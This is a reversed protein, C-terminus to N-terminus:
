KEVVTMMRQHSNAFDDFDSRAICYMGYWVREFFNLSSSFIELLERDEHARRKLEREYERNSKYVEITIMEHDALQALTALYLARMALRLDGKEALEGALALWRNTSLDDAKVNEDTLDPTSVAVASVTEVPQPRRRRWIRVFIFTLIATLLILL